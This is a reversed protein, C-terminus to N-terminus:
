LGAKRTARRTARHAQGRVYMRAVAGPGKNVAYGLALARLLTRLLGFM